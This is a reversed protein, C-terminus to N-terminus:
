FIKLPIIFEDSFVFSINRKGFTKHPQLTKSLLFYGKTKSWFEIGEIICINLISILEIM